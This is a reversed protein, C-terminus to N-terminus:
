RTHHAYGVFYFKQELDRLLKWSLALVSGALGPRAMTQMATVGGTTSLAALSVGAVSSVWLACMAGFAIM